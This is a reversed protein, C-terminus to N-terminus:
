GDFVQFFSPLCVPYASTRSPLTTLLLVTVLVYRRSWCGAANVRPPSTTSVTDAPLVRKMRARGIMHVDAPRASAQPPRLAPCVKVLMASAPARGKAGEMLLGLNDLASTAARGLG